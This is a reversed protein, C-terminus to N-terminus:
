SKVKKTIYCTTGSGSFPDLVIEGPNSCAKIIMELLAEPKQTPHYGFKKENM